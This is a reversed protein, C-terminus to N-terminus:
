PRSPARPRPPPARWAQAPREPPRPERPERQAAQQPQAARQGSSTSNIKGCMATYLKTSARGGRRANEYGACLLRAIDEVTEGKAGLFTGSIGSTAPTRRAVPAAPMLYLPRVATSSAKNASPVVTAATVVREFHGDAGTSHHRSFSLAPFARASTTLEPLALANVPLLPRAAVAIVALSAACADPQWGPSTKRAEVPTIPSGSGASRKSPTSSPSTSFATGPRKRSAALAIM